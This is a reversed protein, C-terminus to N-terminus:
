FGLEQKDWNAVTQVKAEQLTQYVLAALADGSQLSQAELTTLNGQMETWDEALQDGESSVTIMVQIIYRTKDSPKDM